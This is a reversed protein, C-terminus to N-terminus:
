RSPRGYGFDGPSPPAASNGYPPDYPRPPDIMYDGSAERLIEHEIQARLPHNRPYLSAQEELWEIRSSNRSM